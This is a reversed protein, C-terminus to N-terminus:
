SPSKSCRSVQRSYVHKVSPSKGQYSKSDLLGDFIEWDTAILVNRVKPRAYHCRKYLLCTRHPLRTFPCMLYPLFSLAESDLAVSLWMLHCAHNTHSKECRRLSRYIDTFWCLKLMPPLTLSVCFLHRLVDSDQWVDWPSSLFSM